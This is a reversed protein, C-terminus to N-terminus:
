KHTVLEERSELESSVDAEIEAVLATVIIPALFVAAYLLVDM